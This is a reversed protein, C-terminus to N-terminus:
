SGSKTAPKGKAADVTTHDPKSGTTWVAGLDKLEVEICEVDLHVEAGAAFRLAIVGAPEEGGEFVMALLVMVGDAAARDFGTFRARTVREFRLGARRREFPGKANRADASEWDFRNCVLAFRKARAQFVLDGVRVVGDQCQASLVALDERDLAQLRLQAM